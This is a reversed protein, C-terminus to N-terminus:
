GKQPLDCRSVDILLGSQSIKHGVKLKDSLLSRKDDALLDIGQGEFVLLILTMQDVMLCSTHSSSAVLPPVTSLGHLFLVLICVLGFVIYVSRPLFTPTLYVHIHPTTSQHQLNFSNHRRTHRTFHVFFSILRCRAFRLPFIFSSSVCLPFM